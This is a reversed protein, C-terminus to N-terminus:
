YILIYLSLYGMASLEMKSNLNDNLSYGMSGHSTQVQQSVYTQRGSTCFMSRNDFMNTDISTNLHMQGRQVHLPNRQLVEDSNLVDSFPKWSHFQICDSRTCEQPKGMLFKACYKNYGNKASIGREQWRNNVYFIANTASEEREFHIIASYLPNDPAKKPQITAQISRIHNIPGFVGFYQQSSLKEITAIKPLGSVVVSRRDHMKMITLQRFSVYGYPSRCLGRCNYANSNINNINNVHYSSCPRCTSFYLNYGERNASITSEASQNFSQM